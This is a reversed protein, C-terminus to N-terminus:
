ISQSPKGPQYARYMATEDSERGGQERQRAQFDQLMLRQLPREEGGREDEGSDCRPVPVTVMPVYPGQHAKTSAGRYQDDSPEGLRHRRELTSCGQSDGASESQDPEVDHIRHFQAGAVRAAALTGDRVPRAVGDRALAVTPRRASGSVGASAAAWGRADIYSAGQALVYFGVM